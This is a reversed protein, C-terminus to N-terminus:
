KTRASASGSRFGNAQVQEKLAAHVIFRKPAKGVFYFPYCTVLTLSPVPRPQLVSVNGPVVIEIADVAYTSVSDTTTLELTDGRAINRLVRFFGDRHGAVGISGLEGPRATGEIWGVGRSLRWEDTGAFVPIRLNHKEIVLVAIAPESRSLLSNRFEAIRKASWIRFDFQSQQSKVESVRAPETHATPPRADFDQVAARALLLGYVLAAAFVALLMFGLAMLVREAIWLATDRKTM